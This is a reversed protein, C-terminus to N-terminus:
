RMSHFAIRHGESDLILAWYGLAETILTEFHRSGVFPDFGSEYKIALTWYIIKNRNM